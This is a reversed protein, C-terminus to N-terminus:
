KDFYYGTATIVVFHDVINANSVKYEVKDGIYSPNMDYSDIFISAYDDVMSTNSSIELEEVVDVYSNDIKEKRFGNIELTSLTFLVDTSSKTLSTTSEFSFYGPIYKSIIVGVGQIATATYGDLTSSNNFEFALDTYFGNIDTYSNKIELTESITGNITIGVTTTPMQNSFTFMSIVSGDAAIAVVDGNIKKDFKWFHTAGTSIWSTGNFQLLNLGSVAIINGDPLETIATVSGSIGSVGSDWSTGNFTYINNYSGAIIKGDSLEYLSNIWENTIQVGSNWSTGNFTYVYGASSGLLVSGSDLSMIMCTTLETVGEPYNSGVVVGSDWSTGNFQFVRRSELAALTNGNILNVISVVSHEYGDLPVGSDWSTGDFTYVKGETDGIMLKGEQLACISIIHGSTISVFSNWTIGNYIFVSSTPEGAVVAIDGNSLTAILSASSSYAIFQGSDWSYGLSPIETDEVAFLYKDFNQRNIVTLKELFFGKGSVEPVLTQFNDTAIGLNVNVQKCVFRSAEALSADLGSMIFSITDNVFKVNPIDQDNDFTLQKLYRMKGSPLVIWKLDNYSAVGFLPRHILEGDNNYNRGDLVIAPRTLGDVDPKVSSAILYGPANGNLGGGDPDFDYNTLDANIHETPLFVGPIGTGNLWQIISNTDIATLGLIRYAFIGSQITITDGSKSVKTDDTIAVSAPVLRQFQLPNYKHSM